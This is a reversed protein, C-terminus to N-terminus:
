AAGEVRAADVRRAAEGLESEEPFRHSFYKEEVYSTLVALASAPRQARVHEFIQRPTWIGWLGQSPLMQAAVERYMAFIRERVPLLDVRANRLEGRHPISVAFRETCYGPSAIEAQWEGAALREIEFRGRDDAAEATEGISPHVLRISAGAIAQRDVANRVTGSFGFDQPRRLTSVLSPKAELLGTAVPEDPRVSDPRKSAPEDSERRRLAALWKEWPRTRLAVFALLAAATAGFAALTYGVPVPQREGIRVVVDADSSTLWARSSEFKVQLDFKGTGLEAAGVELAFSGGDGTLAEALSREGAHLSIPEVSIGAGFDDILKGRVRIRGEFPIVEDVLEAEIRTGSTVIFTASATAPDYAETGTFRAEIRKRGAAGLSEREITASGRGSSDTTIRGVSELADAGADGAFLEAAIAVPESEARARVTVEVQRATSPIEEEVRVTLTLPERAVDFGAVAFTAASYSGDGAYRLSLEHEGESVPVTRRFRGDEDASQEHVVGDIELQVVAFAVPEGTAREEVRGTITIGEPSRKIPDLVISSRAQVAVVPPEARAPSAIVGCLVLAGIAASRTM